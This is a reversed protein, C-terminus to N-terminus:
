VCMRISNPESPSIDFLIDFSCVKELFSEAGRLDLKTKNLDIEKEVAEIVQNTELLQYLLM